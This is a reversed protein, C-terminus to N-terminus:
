VPGQRGDPPPGVEVLGVRDQPDDSRPPDRGPAVSVGSRVEVRREEVPGSGHRGDQTITRTLTRTAAVSLGTRRRPGSTPDDEGVTDRGVVRGPKGSGRRGHPGHWRTPRHRRGPGM